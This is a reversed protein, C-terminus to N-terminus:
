AFRELFEYGDRDGAVKAHITTQLKEFPTPASQADSTKLVYNQRSMKRKCRGLTSDVQPFVFALYSAISAHQDAEIRNLFVDGICKQM